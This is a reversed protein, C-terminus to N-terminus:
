SVGPAALCPRLFGLGNPAAPHIRNPAFGGLDAAFVPPIRSAYLGVCVRVPKPNTFIEGQPFFFWKVDPDM